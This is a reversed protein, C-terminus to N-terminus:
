FIDIYDESQALALPAFNWGAVPGEMVKDLVNDVPVKHVEEEGGGPEAETSEFDDVWFFYRQSDSKTDRYASGLLNASVPEYGTEEEFERLAADEASEDTEIGGGPLELTNEDIPDRDIEVFIMEDEYVGICLVNDEDNTDINDNEVDQKGILGNVRERIYDNSM